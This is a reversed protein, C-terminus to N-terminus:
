SALERLPAALAEAYAVRETLRVHLRQLAAREGADQECTIQERLAAVLRGVDVVDIGRLDMVTPDVLRELMTRGIVLKSGIRVAPVEGSEIQRYLHSESVGLWEAAEAVSFAGREGM